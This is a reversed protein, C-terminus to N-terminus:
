VYVISCRKITSTLSHWELRWRNAMFWNAQRSPVPYSPLSKWWAVVCIPRWRPVPILNGTGFLQLWYHSPQKPQVSPIVPRTLPFLVLETQQQQQLWRSFHFPIGLGSSSTFFLAKGEPGAPGLLSKYWLLYASQSCLQDGDRELCDDQSKKLMQWEDEDRGRRLVM